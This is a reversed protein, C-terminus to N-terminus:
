HGHKGKGHDESYYQLLIMFDDFRLSGFLYAGVLWYCWKPTM